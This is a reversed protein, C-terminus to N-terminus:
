KEPHQFERLKDLIMRRAAEDPIPINACQAVARWDAVDMAEADEVGIQFRRLLPIIADMAAFATRAHRVGHDYFIM